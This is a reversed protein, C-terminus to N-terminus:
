DAGWRRIFSEKTARRMAEIEDITVGMIESLRHRRAEDSFNISDWERWRIEELERVTYEDTSYVGTSRRSIDAVAAGEGVLGENQCVELLRTGAQPTAISITVYDFLKSGALEITQGIQDRTEGPLGIVFYGITEFGMDRAAKLRELDRALRVPKRIINDLVEQSGSEFALNLRYCGAKLMAELVENDLTYISLGGSAIWNLNLGRDVMGECLKLTRNKNLTLNEDLFHVEEIGFERSLRELDDLVKDVSRTRFKRGGRLFSVNCFCCGSTCGRSTQYMTYKRSKEAYRLNGRGPYDFYQDYKFEEYVPFPLVDLDDLRAIGSDKLGSNNEIVGDMDGEGRVIRVLPMDYEGRVLYDPRVESMASEPYSTAYPGCYVTKIGESVDKAMKFAEATDARCERILFALAQPASVVFDPNFTKIFDRFDSQWDTVGNASCINLDFSAAEHGASKLLAAAFASEIPFIVKPQVARSPDIEERQILFAIKAM